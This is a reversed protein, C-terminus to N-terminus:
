EKQALLICRRSYMKYPSFNYDGYAEKFELGACKMMSIIEAATYMRVKLVFKKRTGDSHVYTRIDDHGGKIPDYKHEILEITADPLVMWDREIYNGIIRDRNAVDILLKGRPKLVKAIQKIVKEDEDDNELYGFATFLNVVADFEHKFPIKRMDSRIWRVDVGSEKSSDEALKLFYKNLDQGTVKYGRLALEVSHRGHGCGLDLIKAKKKLKLVKEAFDIESKTREPPLEKGYEKMYNKGFFGYEESYWKVQKITRDKM